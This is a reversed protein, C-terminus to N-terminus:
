PSKSNRSIDDIARGDDPLAAISATLGSRQAEARHQRGLAPGSVQKRADTIAMSVHRNTAAPQIGAAPRQIMGHRTMAHQERDIPIWGATRAATEM